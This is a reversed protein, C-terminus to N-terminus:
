LLEGSTRIRLWILKTWADWGIQKLDLNINGEWRSRSRGLTRSDEPKGALVRYVNRKRGVYIVHGVWRVKRSKIARILKPLSTVDHLEESWDGTVEERKGVLM